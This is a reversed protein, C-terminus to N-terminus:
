CSLLVYAEFGVKENRCCNCCTFEIRKVGVCHMIGCKQSKKATAINRDILIYIWFWFSDCTSLFILLDSVNGNCLQSRTYSCEKKQQAIMILILLKWGYAITPKAMKLLKAIADNATCVNTKVTDAWIRLAFFSM